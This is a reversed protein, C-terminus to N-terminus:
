ACGEFADAEMKAEYAPAIADGTTFQPKIEDWNDPKVRVFWGEGYPDENGLAPRATVSDNVAIIEGGSVLKAPGVWKGSEITACSKGLKVARGVKKPTVAVLQGAMAAAVSSMGVTVTGDDNERYWINNEIDYLLDEELICGRVIAM